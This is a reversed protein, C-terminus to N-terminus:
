RNYRWELVLSAFATVGLIFVYAQMTIRQIFMTPLNLIFWYKMFSYFKEEIRKSM